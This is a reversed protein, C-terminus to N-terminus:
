LEAEITGPVHEHKWVEAEEIPLYYRRIKEKYSEDIL